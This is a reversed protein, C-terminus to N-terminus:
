KNPTKKNKKNKQFKELYSFFLELAKEENNKAEKL